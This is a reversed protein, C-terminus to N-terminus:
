AESVRELLPLVEEQDSLFYRAASPGEGVKISLASPGVARFLDEDTHGDGLALVVDYNGQAMFHRATNGKDIGHTRVEIAEEGDMVFCEGTLVGELLEIASRKDATTLRKDSTRYHWVLSFEKEEIYTAPYKGILKRLASKVSKKWDTSRVIPQTWGEQPRYIFGGHEAVLTIPRDGFWQELTSRDRGSIIVLTNAGQSALRLLTRLVEHSPAALEPRRAFPALTGDYDILMLRRKSNHLRGLVEHFHEVLPYPGGSPAAREPLGSLFQRVWQSVSHKRIADQMAQINVEQEEVRQELATKIASAIERRDNPNVQICNRLENAAGTTESLILVGRAPTRSAVFEKAVLNMGDRIPAILAVDSSAYLAVLRWFEFTRYQYIVPTWGLTGYTGNIRSVTVEIERKNERYKLLSDRSPVMVLLYAVKRHYRPYTELFLEFSELRSLLAKTYDLRDVSLILRQDRFRSRIQEAEKRTKSSLSQNNFKEFDISIPFSDIKNPPESGVIRRYSEIFYSTYDPTHFGVLDAGSLGHLLAYRWPKPLIRFVEFTPFPIHLFFGISADPLASRLIEPLMMFHYDHIWIVDGSRYQDIIKRAFMMNVRRYSEFHQEKYVLFSPFYHFLPWIVSNCFGYYFNELTGSNLFVSHLIIGDSEITDSGHAELVKKSLEGAGLWHVEKFVQDSNAPQSTFYSKLSTTLGGVSEAKRIQGASVSFRFPLRFSVLWLRRQSSNM